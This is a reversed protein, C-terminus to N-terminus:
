GRRGGVLKLWPAAHFGSMLLYMATMGDLRSGHAASCVFETAGGGLGSTLLAMVAFTPTAALHLWKAIRRAAAAEGEIDCVTGHSAGGPTIM